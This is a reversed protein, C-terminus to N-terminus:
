VPRRFGAGRLSAGDFEGSEVGAWMADDAVFLTMLWTGAKVAESTEFEIDTRALWCECLELPAADDGHMFGLFTEGKQFKRLFAHCALEIEHATVVDEQSDSQEDATEPDGDWPELVVITILRRPQDVKCIPVVTVIDVASM